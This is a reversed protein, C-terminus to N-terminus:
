VQHYPHIRQFIVLAKGLSPSSIFQRYQGESVNSYAFIKGDNFQIYMTNNSWGVQKMRSSCVPKLNM